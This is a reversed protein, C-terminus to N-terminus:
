ILSPLSSALTRIEDFRAIVNRAYETERHRPLVGLGIGSHLSGENFPKSRALSDAMSALREAVVRRLGILEPANLTGDDNARYFLGAHNWVLAVATMSMQMFKDGLHIQEDHGLGFEYETAEKLARLTTLQKALRDRLSDSQRMYSATPLGSDVLVIIRGTDVLVSAVARRHICLWLHAISGSQIM